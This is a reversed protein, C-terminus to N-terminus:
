KITVEFNTLQSIQEGNAQKLAANEQMLECIKAKLAQNELKGELNENKLEL